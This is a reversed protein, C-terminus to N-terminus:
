NKKLWFVGDAIAYRRTTESINILSLRVDLRGPKSWKVAAQSVDRRSENAYRYSLTVVGQDQYSEAERYTKVMAQLIELPSRSVEPSEIEKGTSGPDNTTCGSLVLLLIVLFFNAQKM